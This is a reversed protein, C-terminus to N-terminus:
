PVVVMDVFVVVREKEVDQLFSNLRRTRSSNIMSWVPDIREGTEEKPSGVLLHGNGRGGIGTRVVRWAAGPSGQRGQLQDCLNLHDPLDLCCALAVDRM